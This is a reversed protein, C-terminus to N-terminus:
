DEERFEISVLVRDYVESGTVPRIRSLVIDGNAVINPRYFRITSDARIYEIMRARIEENDAAEIMKLNQTSPIYMVVKAM